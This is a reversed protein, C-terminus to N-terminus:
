CAGTPGLRWDQCRGTGCPMHDDAQVEVQTLATMELQPAGSRAAANVPIRLVLDAQDEVGTREGTVNAPQVELPLPAVLTGGVAKTM